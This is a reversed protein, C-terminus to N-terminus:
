GSRRSNRVRARAANAAGEEKAADLRPDAKKKPEVHTRVHSVEGPRVARFGGYPYLEFLDLWETGDEKVVHREFMLWSQGVKVDHQRSKVTMPKRGRGGAFQWEFYLTWDDPYPHDNRVRKRHTMGATSAPM